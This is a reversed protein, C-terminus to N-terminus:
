SIDLRFKTEAMLYMRRWVLRNIIVVIAAMLATSAVLLDMNGADTAQSITSGLGLTSITGGQFHFYEAM